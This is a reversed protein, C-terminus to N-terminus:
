AVEPAESAAKDGKGTKEADDIVLGNLKGSVAWLLLGSLIAIGAIVFYTPAFPFQLTFEYLFGYSYGAFFVALVWVSMMNALLKPPSFKAIFSNGLPSFVMEGLSLTVGFALIWLLSAQNDGRSVDAVAFIAYAAGLLLLGLSTKQFMNWDGKPSKAKRVWLLGLVPGLVICSLANLSDFWSTPVQFNGLTWDAAAMEGGWYFYVPMYALYWFVWFIVSFFSVLIIAAVRKKEVATLPKSAVKENINKVRREDVKFPKKGTDGLHRWGYLFWLADIFMVIGCILFCIRFGYVLALTGIITTGIFSGINVFSYQTSFASDLQERDTFLRGTIANTQPKFLGTGLSVLLIMLHVHTVSEAQWGFLYGVGMLTMGVPVLYRAGIWHDSIYAGFLPALYTFAVLNASLKAADAASLGLGGDIIATAVFITMLWKASYFAFREFTFAVSCVYFGFPKKQKATTEM